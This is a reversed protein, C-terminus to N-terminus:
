TMSRRFRRKDLPPEVFRRACREPPLVLRALGECGVGPLKSSSIGLGGASRYSGIGSPQSVSDVALAGTTWIM